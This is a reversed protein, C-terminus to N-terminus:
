VYDIKNILIDRVESIIDSITTKHTSKFGSRYDYECYWMLNHPNKYFYLDIGRYLKIRSVDIEPCAAHAGHSEIWTIIQKETIM